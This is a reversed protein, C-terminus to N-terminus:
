IIKNYVSYLKTKIINLEYLRMDAFATDMWSDPM